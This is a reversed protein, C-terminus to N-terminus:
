GASSGYYPCACSFFKQGTQLSRTIDPDVALLNGVDTRMGGKGAGCPRERFNEIQLMLSAVNAQHAIWLSLLWDVDAM